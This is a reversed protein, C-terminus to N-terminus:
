QVVNEKILGLAECMDALCKAVAVLSHRWSKVSIRQIGKIDKRSFIKLLPTHRYFIAGHVPTFM